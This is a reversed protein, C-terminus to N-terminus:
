DERAKRRDNKRAEEARKDGSAYRLVPDPSVKGISDDRKNAERRMNEVTERVANPPKDAAKIADHATKDKYHEHNRTDM